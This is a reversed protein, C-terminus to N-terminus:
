LVPVRGLEAHEVFEVKTSSEICFAPRVGSRLNLGVGGFQGNGGAVSYMTNYCTVASRLMYSSDTGKEATARAPHVMFYLLWEGDTAITVGEPGGVELWSLIFAKRHITEVELGCHNLADKRSIKIPVEAAEIGELGSLYEGSLWEGIQSNAYYSNGQFNENYYRLEDMVYKRLLLTKGSRNYNNTLVIYPTLVGSESVYVTSSTFPVLNFAMSGIRMTEPQCGSVLLLAAFLVALAAIFVRSARMPRMGM